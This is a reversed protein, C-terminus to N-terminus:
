MDAQSAEWDYLLPRRKINEKKFGTIFKFIRLEEKIKWEGSYSYLVEKTKRENQGSYHRNLEM